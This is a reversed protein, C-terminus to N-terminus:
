SDKTNSKRAQTYIENVYVSAGAALIGQTIATFSALAVEKIGSIDTTGIVWISSLLVGIIGLTIPIWKNALKSKKLGIGIFYLVPVLILLETKMYDQYEM